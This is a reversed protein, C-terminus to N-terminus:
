FEYSRPDLLGLPSARTPLKERKVRRIGRFEDEPNIYLPLPFAQLHNM